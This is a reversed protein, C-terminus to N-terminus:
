SASQKNTQDKSIKIDRAIITSRIMVVVAFVRQGEIGRYTLVLARKGGDGDVDVRSLDSGTWSLKPWTTEALHPISVQPMRHSRDVDSARMPEM